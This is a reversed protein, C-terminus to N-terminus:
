TEDDSDAWRALWEPDDIDYDQPRQEPHPRGYRKHSAWSWGCVCRREGLADSGGQDSWGPCTEVAYSM